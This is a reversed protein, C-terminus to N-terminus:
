VDFNCGCEPCEVERKTKNPKTEEVHIDIPPLDVRATFGTFEVMPLSLADMEIKLLGADWEGRSLENDAIRHARIQEDTLHDAYICSVKELGLKKAAMVRGHGTVLVLDATVVVPVLFGFQKINKALKEIQEAPHKKPNNEYMKLKSVEILEYRIKDLEIM